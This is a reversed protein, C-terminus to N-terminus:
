RKRMSLVTGKIRSATVAPCNVAVLRKHDMREFPETPSKWDKWPREHRVATLIPLPHAGQDLKMRDWTRSWQFWERKLHPWDADEPFDEGQPAQIGPPPLSPLFQYSTVMTSYIDLPQAHLGSKM